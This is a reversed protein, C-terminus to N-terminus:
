PKGEPGSGAVVLRTGPLDAVAALDEVQKEQAIRDVYGAIRRGGAVEQRWREDRHRPSFRATDVGRRWLQVDRIGHETLQRLASSSPAPTLTGLDRMGRVHGWLLPELLPAGYKAAYGPVDTQHVAVCDVGLQHAALIVRRGLVFPSGVHVVDPGFRELRRRVRAVTGGAVRVDPYGTLPVVPLRHVPVGDLDEVVDEMLRGRPAPECSPAVVVVDHGRAALQEVVRLVPHTVGNMHPLFQEAVAAVRM